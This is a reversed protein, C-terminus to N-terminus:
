FAPHDSFRSLDFISGLLWVAVLAPILGITLIGPILYRNLLFAKARMLTEPFPAFVGAQAKHWNIRKDAEIYIGCGVM